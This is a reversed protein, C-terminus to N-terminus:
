EVLMMGIMLRKLLRNGTQGTSLGDRLVRSGTKFDASAGFPKNQYTSVTGACSSCWDM